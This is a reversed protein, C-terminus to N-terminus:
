VLILCQSVNSIKSAFTTIEVHGSVCKFEEDHMIKSVPTTRNSYKFVFLFNWFRTLFRHFDKKISHTDMNSYQDFSFM